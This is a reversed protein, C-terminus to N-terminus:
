IFFSSSINWGDRCFSPWDSGWWHGWCSLPVLDLQKWVPLEVQVLLGQVLLIISSLRHFILQVQVVECQTM